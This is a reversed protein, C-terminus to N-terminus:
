IQKLVHVWAGDQQVLVVAEGLPIAEWDFNGYTHLCLDKRTNLEYSKLIEDELKLMPDEHYDCVLRLVLASRQILNPNIDSKSLAEFLYSLHTEIMTNRDKRTISILVQDNKQLYVKETLQTPEPVLLTGEAQPEKYSKVRLPTGSRRLPQITKPHLVGAGFFTMEAALDYSIKDLKVAQPYIKPDGSMIGPVDKWVSSESVCLVNSFISATFDSGERGLTTTQGEKTSAIYGQVVYATPESPKIQAVFGLIRLETLTWLVDAQKFSADTIIFDRADLWVSPVGISELHQYLIHTSILEGFAMIRDFIRPPTDELLIVGQVVRKLEALRAELTEFASHIDAPVVQSLIDFHYKQLEEWQAFAENELGRTAFFALRELANTTKGMASAVVVVPQDLREAIIKGVNQVGEADKLSAGGFKFVKM